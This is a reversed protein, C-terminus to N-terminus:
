IKCTYEFRKTRASLILFEDSCACSAWKLDNNIQVNEVSMTREDVLLINNEEIVIFRNLSSSWCMDRIMDHVWLVQKIIKMEKDILCINPKQHVLLFQNNSAMAIYSAYPRDLTQYVHFVASLDFEHVNTEQIQVLNQDIVFPHTNIRFSTEETKSREKELLHLVAKCSDIDHRTAEQEHIHKAVVSQIHLIKEQHKDVKVTVLRNLEQHKNEFYHDIKQHCEKRWKELKERCDRITKHNFFSKLRDGLAGV